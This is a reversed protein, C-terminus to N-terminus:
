RFLCESPVWHGRAQIDAMELWERIRNEPAVSRGWYEVFLADELRSAAEEMESRLDELARQMYNGGRVQNGRLAVSGATFLDRVQPCLIGYYTLLFMAADDYKNKARSPKVVQPCLLTAEARYRRKEEQSLRMYLTVQLPLSREQEPSDELWWLREGPQLRSRAYARVHLMKAEMDLSCFDLYSVGFIDFLPQRPQHASGEPYVEVEFRPVHSTRVHIVSTEYRGWSVGPEGGMKGFVLYIHKVSTDRTSELVSNAVSRWSDGTTFKVEIGFEGLVIDPFVHPHPEFNAAIGHAELLAHAEVRVRNEFEASREWITGQSLESNLRDCLEALISEFTTETM